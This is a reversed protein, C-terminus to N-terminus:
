SARDGRFMGGTIKRRPVGGRGPNPHREAIFVLAIFVALSALAVIVIIVTAVSSATMATGGGASLVVGDATTM